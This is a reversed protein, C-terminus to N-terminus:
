TNRHTATPGGRGHECSFAHPAACAQLQTGQSCRMVVHAHQLKKLREVVVRGRRGAIRHQAKLVDVNWKEVAAAAM